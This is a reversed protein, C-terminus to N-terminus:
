CKNILNAASLGQELTGACLARAAPLPRAVAAGTGTGHCREKM